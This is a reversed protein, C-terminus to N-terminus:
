NRKCSDEQMPELKQLYVRHTPSYSEQGASGVIEWEYKYELYLMGNRLYKAPVKFLTCTNSPLFNSNSLHGWMLKRSSDSSANSEFGYQPVSISKHKLALIRNGNSLELMQTAEGSQEALFKITWVTNNVLKVWVESSDEIKSKSGTAREVSLYVTPSKPDIVIDTRTLMAPKASQAYTQFNVLFCFCILLFTKIM